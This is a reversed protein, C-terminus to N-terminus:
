NNQIVKLEVLTLKKLKKIAKNILQMLPVIAILILINTNLWGINKIFDTSIHILICISCDIVDCHSTHLANQAMAGTIVSMIVFIICFIIILGKKYKNRIM